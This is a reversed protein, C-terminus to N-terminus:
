ELREAEGTGELRDDVVADVVPAAGSAVALDHEAVDAAHGGVLEAAGLVVVEAEDDVEREVLAAVAGEVVDGDEVFEDFVVAGEGEDPERAEERGLGVAGRSSNTAMPMTRSSGTVYRWCRLTSFCAAARLRRVL